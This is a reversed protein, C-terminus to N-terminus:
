GSYVLENLGAAEDAVIQDMRQQRAYGGLQTDFTSTGPMRLPPGLAKEELEELEELKDLAAEIGEEKCMVFFFDQSVVLTVILTVADVALEIFFASVGMPVAFYWVKCWLVLFQVMLDREKDDFLYAATLHMPALMFAGLLAETGSVVPTSLYFAVLGRLLAHITAVHLRYLRNYWDHTTSMLLAAGQVLVAASVMPSRIGELPWVSRAGTGLSAAVFVVVCLVARCAHTTRM